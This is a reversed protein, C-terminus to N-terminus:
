LSPLLQRSLPQRGSLGAPCLFKHHKDNLTPGWRGVLKGAVRFDKWWTGRGFEGVVETYCCPVLLSWAKPAQQSGASLVYAYNLIMLMKYLPCSVQKGSHGAQLVLSIAAQVHCMKPQRWKLLMAACTCLLPKMRENRAKAPFPHELTAMLFPTSHQLELWVSEWSFGKMAADSTDCLISARKDSCIQQMEGKIHHGIIKAAQHHHHKNNLLQQFISTKRTGLAKGNKQSIWNSCVASTEQLGWHDLQTIMVHM